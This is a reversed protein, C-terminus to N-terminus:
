FTSLIHMNTIQPPFLIEQTIFQKLEEQLREYNSCYDSENLFTFQILLQNSDIQNDGRFAAGTLSDKM